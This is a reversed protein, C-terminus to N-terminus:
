SAAPQSRREMLAKVRSKAAEPKAPDTTAGGTEGNQQKLLTLGAPLATTDVGPPLTVVKTGDWALTPQATTSTQNPLAPESTGDTYFNMLVGNVERQSHVRKVGGTEPQPLSAGLGNTWGMVQGTRPDTVPMATAALQARQTAAQGQMAQEAAWVSGQPTQLFRELNRNMRAQVAPRVPGLPGGPMPATPTGLPARAARNALDQQVRNREQVDRVADLQEQAQMGKIRMAEQERMPLPPVAGRRELQTFRGELDGRLQAAEPPVPLGPEAWPGQVVDPLMPLGETDMDLQYRGSPDAMFRPGMSSAAFDAPQQQQLNFGTGYPGQVGRFTRKDGVQELVRMEGGEARPKVQMKGGYAKPKIQMKGGYGRPTVDRTLMPLLDETVDAPVVHANGDDRPFILEPGEEGVLYVQKGPKMQGGDAMMKPKPMVAEDVMGGVADGVAAGAGMAPATFPTFALEPAPMVPAAPRMTPTAGPMPTLDGEAYAADLASARQPSLGGNEAVYEATTRAGVRTGIRRNPDQPAYRAWPAGGGGGGGGGMPLPPMMAVSAGAQTGGVNLPRRIRAGGDPTLGNMANVEKVLNETVGGPRAHAGLMGPM